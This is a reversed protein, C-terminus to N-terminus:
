GLLQDIERILTSASTVGTHKFRIYGDQNIIVTKPIATVQYVQGLNATDRAWIWTAYPFDQAFSRLTEASQTPDIDISMLVIKDRYDEKEWIVKLHPMQQRCPECWTAMFDIVVVKGRFDSLWFTNGDLDTLSFDSALNGEHEQSKPQLLYWGVTIAVIVIALVLLSVLMRRRRIPVEMNKETSEEHSDNRMYHDTMNARKRLPVNIALV